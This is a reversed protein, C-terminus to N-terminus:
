RALAVCAVGALIIAAGALRRGLGREGLWFRGIFAALVISLERAAVVYGAKSLRFAFLVLLYAGITMLAALAITRRNATWELRLGGREALVAPVLLVTLGCFMLGIYPVPHLRGVGAKDILSYAAIAVGTAAAWATGAGTVRVPRGRSWGAVQTAVIGAVVLAVGTIGLASLSEDLLVAALVPVLAVGLGRAVPYVLSLDAARYARALCVFYLGHVVISAAVFPAAGPAVGDRAVWWLTAPLAAATALATAWWLFCLPSRASKSLANWAAHLVAATLVLALATAPM